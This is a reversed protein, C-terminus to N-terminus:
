QPGLPESANLGGVRLLSRLRDRLLRMAEYDLEVPDADNAVIGEANLRAAATADIRRTGHAFADRVVAAQVLGARGDLVADWNKGSPRTVKWGM